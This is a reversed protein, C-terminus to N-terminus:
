YSPIESSDAFKIVPHTMLRDIYIEKKLTLFHDQELLSWGASFLTFYEVLFIIHWFVRM